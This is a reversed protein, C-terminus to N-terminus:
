FGIHVMLLTYISLFFIKKMQLTKPAQGRMVVEISTLGINRGLDEIEINSMAINDIKYKDNFEKFNPFIVKLNKLHM